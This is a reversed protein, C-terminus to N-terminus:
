DYSNYLGDESAIEEFKDNLKKQKQSFTNHLYDFSDKSSTAKGKLPMKIGLDNGKLGEEFIKQLHIGKDVNRIIKQIDGQIIGFDGTKKHIKDEIDEDIRRAIKSGVGKVMYPNKQYEKLLYIGVKPNFLYYDNSLHKNDKGFTAIWGKPHKKSEKLVDNLTEERSKIQM